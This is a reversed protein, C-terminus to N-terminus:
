TTLVPLARTLVPLASALSRFSFLIPLSPFQSHTPDFRLAIDGRGLVLSEIFAGWRPPPPPRPLRSLSTSTSGGSQLKQVRYGAASTNAFWGMRPPLRGRILDPSRILLFRM